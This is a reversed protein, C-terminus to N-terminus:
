SRMKDAFAARKWERLWGPLEVLLNGGLILGGGALLRLTVHDYGWVVSLASGFVPELLYILAARCASVQPQYVSMWHLALVTSFLTLALLSGILPPELLTATMWGAWGAGEPSVAAWGAAALLAPLGTGALFGVTLHGPQVGRGVRDLMLIMAAFVFTSLITLMEGRGLTVASGGELGLVAAGAVGVLLGFLTLRAVATRFCVFALLPVWASSLSTLFVSVAPSTLALGWAQGSSGLCNVLGLLLGATVERRSPRLFFRPQCVAVLLLAIVTRLGTMTLGAILEGGPSDAARAANLWTKVLPFSLGWFFTILVLM